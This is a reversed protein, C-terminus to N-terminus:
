LTVSAATPERDVRYVWVTDVSPNPQFGAQSNVKSGSGWIREPPILKTSKHDLLVL